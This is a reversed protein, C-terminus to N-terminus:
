AAPQSELWDLFPRRILDHFRGAAAPDKDLDNRSTVGCSKIILDKAAAESQVDAWQWFQRNRSFQCAMICLDRNPRM